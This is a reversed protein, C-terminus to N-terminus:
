SRRDHRLHQTPIVRAALSDARGARVVTADIANLVGIQPQERPRWAYVFGWIVSAGVFSIALPLFIFIKALSERKIRDVLAAFGARHCRAVAPALMLWILNNRLALQVSPTPSRRRRLQLPARARGAGRHLEPHHNRDRPLGSLAVVVAIAPLVFVWPRLFAPPGPRSISSSPTSWSSCRGFASSAWSSRWSRRFWSASLQDRPRLVRRPDRLVRLGLWLLVVRCRGRDHADRSVALASREQQHRPELAEPM